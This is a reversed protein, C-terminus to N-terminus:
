HVPSSNLHGPNWAQQPLEKRAESVLILVLSILCTGKNYIKKKLVSRTVKSFSMICQIYLFELFGIPASMKETTACLQSYTYHQPSLALSLHQLCSFSPPIWPCTGKPFKSFQLVRPHLTTCYLRFVLIQHVTPSIENNDWLQFNTPVHGVQLAARTGTTQKVTPWLILFRTIHVQSTSLIDHLAGAWNTPAYM